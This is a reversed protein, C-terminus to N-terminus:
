NSAAPTRSSSFKTKTLGVGFCYVATTLWLSEIFWIIVDLCAGLTYVEDVAALTLCLSVAGSLATSLVLWALTLTGIVVSQGMTQAWADRVGTPAALLGAIAPALRFLLYTSIVAGVWFLGPVLFGFKDSSTGVIAYALFFTFMMPINALCYIGVLRAFARLTSVSFRAVRALRKIWILMLMLFIVSLVPLLLIMMMEPHSIFWIIHQMVIPDGAGSPDFFGVGFSRTAQFALLGSTAAFLLAAVCVFILFTLLALYGRSVIVRPVIYFMLAFGQRM